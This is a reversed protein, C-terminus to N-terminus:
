QSVDTEQHSGTQDVVCVGLSYDISQVGINHPYIKLSWTSGGSEPMRFSKNISEYWQNTDKWAYTGPESWHREDQLENKNSANISNDSFDNLLLM